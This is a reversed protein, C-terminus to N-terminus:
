LCCGPGRPADVRHDLPPYGGQVMLPSLINWCHLDEERWGDSAPETM